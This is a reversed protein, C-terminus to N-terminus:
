AKGAYQPIQEVDPNIFSQKAVDSFLTEASYHSLMIKPDLLRPNQNIFDDASSSIETLEMFHRVAMIWAQTITESYKAININNHVLFGHLATRMSHLADKTESGVLYVYALRIHSRHDFDTIPFSGQEFAFRFKNDSDSLQHEM